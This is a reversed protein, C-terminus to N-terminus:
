AGRRRAQPQSQELATIREVLETHERLRVAYDIISKAAMLKVMEQQSNQCLHVLATVAATMNDLCQGLAQATLESRLENLRAKFAPVNAMWSRITRAAVSTAAGAAEYSMGVALNLAVREQKATLGGNARCNGASHTM